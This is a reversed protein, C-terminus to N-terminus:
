SNEHEALIENHRAESFRPYVSQLQLSGDEMAIRIYRMFLSAKDNGKFTADGTDAIPVPFIYWHFEGQATHKDKDASYSLDYWEGTDTRKFMVLDYYLNGKRYEHLRVTGTKFTDKITFPYEM